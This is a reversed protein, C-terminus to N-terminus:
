TSCADHDATMSLAMHSWDDDPLRSAKFNKRIMVRLISKEEHRSGADADKEDHWTEQGEGLGSDHYNIRL